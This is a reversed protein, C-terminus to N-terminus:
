RLGITFLTTGVKATFEYKEHFEENTLLEKNDKTTWVLLKGEDIASKPVKKRLLHCVLRYTGDTLVICIPYEMDPMQEVNNGM